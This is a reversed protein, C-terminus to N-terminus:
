RGYKRFMIHNIIHKLEKNGNELLKEDYIRKTTSYVPILNNKFAFSVVLYTAGFDGQILLYDGKKATKVIWKKIPELYNSLTEVTPPINSWLHQLDSPLYIFEDVNLQKEAQLSQDSTLKHSFILLMKRM